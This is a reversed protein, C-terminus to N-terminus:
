LSKRRTRRRVGFPKSSVCMSSNMSVSRVFSKAHSMARGRMGCRQVSSAAPWSSGRRDTSSSSSKSMSCSSSSPSAREKEKEGRKRRERSATRDEGQKCSCKSHLPSPFQSFASRPRAPPPAGPPGPASRAPAPARPPARPGAAARRPAPARRAAASASGAARGRALSPGRGRCLGRDPCPCPGRDRDRCPSPSAASGSGSEPGPGPSPAPCPSPSPSAATSTSTAPGPARGRCACPASGSCSCSGCGRGGPCPCPGSAPCADGRRRRRSPARREPKRPSGSARAQRSPPGSRRGHEAAPPPKEVARKSRAPTGTQLLLWCLLRLLRLRLLLVDLNRLRIRQAGLQPQLRQPRSSARLTTAARRLLPWRRMVEPCCVIHTRKGMTVKKDGHSPHACGASSASPTLLLSLVFGYYLTHLLPPRLRAGLASIVGGDVRRCRCCQARRQPPPAFTLPM